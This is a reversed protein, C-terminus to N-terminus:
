PSVEPQSSPSVTSNERSTEPTLTAATDAPQWEIRMQLPTAPEQVTPASVGKGFDARQKPIDTFRVMDNAAAWGRIRAPASLTQVELSLNDREIILVTQEDEAARM